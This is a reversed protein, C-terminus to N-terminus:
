YTLSIMRVVVDAVVVAAVVVVSVYSFSDASLASSSHSLLFIVLFLLVPFPFCLSFVFSFISRRSIRGFDRM